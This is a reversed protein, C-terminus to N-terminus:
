RWRVLFSRRHEVGRHTAQGFLVEERERVVQRTCPREVIVREGDICEEVEVMETLTECVPVKVRYTKIVPNNVIHCKKETIEKSKIETDLYCCKKKFERKDEVRRFVTYTEEREVNKKVICNKVQTETVMIPVMVTCEVLHCDHAGCHNCCAKEGAGVASALCCWGLFVIATSVCMMTRRTPSQTKLTM